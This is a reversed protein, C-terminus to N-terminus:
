DCRPVLKWSAASGSLSTFADGSVGLFDNSGLAFYFRNGVVSRARGANRHATNTASFCQGAAGQVEFSVAQSLISARGTADVAQARATYAGPALSTFSVSWPSPNFSEASGVVLSGQRVTVRIREIDDNPDSATGRVTVRGADVSVQISDITPPAPPLITVEVPGTIESTFGAEDFAQAYVLHTGVPLGPAVASFVETGSAPLVFPIGFVEFTLMVLAVDGNPDSTVGNVVALNGIVGVEMADVSPPAPCADVRQWFRGAGSLATLEDAGLGLLDNSGRAVYVVGLALEARGQAVHVGNTATVCSQICLDAAETCTEDPGCPGPGTVCGRAFTECTETGNCFLGDDCLENVPTAACGFFENCADLTCNVGDDCTPPEGATCGREADCAEFGNCFVGDDCLFNESFSQCTDSLEDCFDLTCDVGDDCPPLSSICGATADCSEIGNCFAGDSCLEDLARIVCGRASEDCRSRTCEVDDEESCTVRTGRACFGERCTEEGNCFLADGCDADSACPVKPVSGFVTVDDVHFGEHANGVGDITDFAFMIQIEAGDRNGLLPALDVSAHQWSGSNMILSSAPTSLLAIFPEGDISLEVSARDFFGSGETGLFYNFELTAGAPVPVEIRSSTARGANSGFTEYTCTADNGYYLTQVESHGPQQAACASGVHWLGEITFDGLGSEFDEVFIIGSTTLEHCRGGNDDTATNGVHDSASVSFFYRTEPELNELVVAPGNSTATQTLADCGFGYAVNLQAPESTTVLLTASRAGLSSVSIPGIQPASCDMSVTATSVGTQGNGTDEDFYTLTVVDGDEVQLVGDEGQAIGAQVAINGVFSGAHEPDEALIATEADGATTDLAVEASGAGVLDSDSLRIELTSACRLAAAGAGVRGRSTLTQLSDYYIDPNPGTETIRRDDSWAIHGTGEAVVVQDYDGHYCLSVDDFNVGIPSSVDSVRENPAWTLGGDTSFTAFRDFALNGDPDLRRDYFSVVVTGDVDVALAPYFQDTNTDDDNLRREESWSQAGDVSRRYFVNSNDPGSGDSDYPYVAHIVYGAAATPEAHIAIQPSSLNRIDGNLAQRSCNSSAAVSEPRLQDRGIDALRVWELGGPFIGGDLEQPPVEAAKYIIQHQLGGFAMARDLLAFYADGNPAIAPWMGIANFGSGPLVSPPSWTNGADDSFSVVNIDSFASFDTWGVYIRGFHPSTPSNDVAMMEKDDGFGFHIAGVSSFSQCSDNSRWLHLGSSGLAAYLFAGDRESYALSPDGRDSVGGDVFGGGDVFSHGGDLSYGFGSRGSPEGSDNWAICIVNGHVVMSTESQTTGDVDLSPDNVLVDTAGAEASPAAAGLPTPSRRELARPTRTSPECSRMLASELTGSLRERIEPNELLECGTARSPTSRSPTSRSLPASATGLASRSQTATAAASPGHDTCGSVAAFNLALAPVLLLRSPYM